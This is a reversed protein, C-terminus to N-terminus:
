KWQWMGTRSQAFKGTLCAFAIVYAIASSFCYPTPAM